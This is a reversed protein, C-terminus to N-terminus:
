GLAGPRCRHQVGKHAILIKLPFMIQSYCPEGPSLILADLVSWPAYDRALKSHLRVIENSKPSQTAKVM